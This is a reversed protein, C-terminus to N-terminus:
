AKAPVSELPLITAFELLGKKYCETAKQQEGLFSLLRGLEAYADASPELAIASELYSRAKGWLKHALCIRALSLLLAPESQHGSRLWSEATAIQKGLDNGLALGYLKVLNIDWQKKMASRIIQEAENSAGLELLLKVYQQIVIPQHRVNRPLTDWFVILSQKGARKAETQLIFNYAKEELSNIQEMPFVNYKKLYPILKAVEPWEGLASNVETLLKIILLNHPAIRALEQLTSLSHELHGEKFQLTAETIGIALKEDPAARLAMRLSNDRRDIAGLEQAAKAAALYYHLPQDSHKAAKLMCTEAKAWDGETLSSWGQNANKTVARLTSGTIWERIKRYTRFIGAFLSYVLVLVAFGIVLLSLRIEVVWDQYSLEINSPNHYLYFGLWTAMALILVYFFLRM